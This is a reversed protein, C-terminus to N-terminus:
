CTQLRLEEGYSVRSGMMLFMIAIQKGHCKCPKLEPKEGNTHWGLKNLTSVPNFSMHYTTDFIEM